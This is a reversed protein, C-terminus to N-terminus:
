DGGEDFDLRVGEENVWRYLYIKKENYGKRLGEWRGRVLGNDGEVREVKRLM